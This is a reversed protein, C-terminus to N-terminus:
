TSSRFRLGIIKKGEILVLPIASLVVIVFLEHAHLATTRFLGHLPPVYIALAMLLVGVLVSGWLARNSFWGLQFNPSRWSRCNFAHFMPTLALVAFAGTQALRHREPDTELPNGCLFAFIGLTTLAMMVGVGFIARLDRGDLLSATPDRPPQDMLNREAPEVGLALAPLGNTVLNIWLIQIPALPPLWQLLGAAFVVLVIGMNSSFLFFIFKKINNFIARGEEVASVITSYNDDALVLDAAEKTVETGAKGMALGISASRVAPADNVGDGTMACVYGKTKLAEVIRLKHVPTARAVISVKDVRGELDSQNMLDIQAGTLLDNLNESLNLQNAIAIATTPQDGTIMITRIGAQRASAIAQSVEARPPDIIGFLGVLILENEWDNLHKPPVTRTALAVVRMAQEGWRIALDYLRKREADSLPVIGNPTLVQTARKILYEPAGRVIAREQEPRERHRLVMTGMKRSSSFPIENILEWADDSSVNAKISAVKLAIDTPNGSVELTNVETPHRRVTADPSWATLELLTTLPNTTRPDLPTSSTAHALDEDDRLLRFSGIASRSDGDLAYDSGACHIRRVTMQNQTLTGTKDTCIIQASGLGEVASLRRVLAHRRAMRQTGLALVITTIAPLGEPIAAVALSVALLFLERLNQGSKLMGVLFVIASIIVCAIVIQKGFRNLNRQLPTDEIEVSNLLGAIRGLETSMGTGVVIAEARGRSVETGMFVMNARDALQTTEPLVADAEKNVPFSEGTLSAESTELNVQSVIRADAPIIDGERLRVLDGPVIDSAKVEHEQGSRIARAAPSTLKKLARLATEARKEQLMGLIANLVVIAFIALSDGYREVFSQNEGHILGLVGAAVAAAILALVTADSIQAALRAWFSPPPKEALVNPGYQTFRRAAEDTTLGAKLDTGIARVLDTVALNHWSTKTELPPIM